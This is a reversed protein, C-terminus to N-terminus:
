GKGDSFVKESMKAVVLKVDSSKVRLDIFATHGDSMELRMAGGEFTGRGAQKMDITEDVTSPPRKGVIPVHMVFYTAVYDLIGAPSKDVGLKEAAHAWLTDNKRAAEYAVRAADHLALNGGIRLAWWAHWKPLFGGPVRATQIGSYLLLGGGLVFCLYSFWRSQFGGLQLATGVLFLVATWMNQNKLTM